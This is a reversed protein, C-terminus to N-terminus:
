YTKKTRMENLSRKKRMAPDRIIQCSASTEFGTEPLRLESKFWIKNCPFM